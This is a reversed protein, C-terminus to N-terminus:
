DGGAGFDMLIIRGGDERMVNQPKIDRHVLGAAHVAALARTLELAVVAAERASFRGREHLLDKLTRGVVLEMWLGVQGKVRDAGYVTVINTHRVAALLRAAEVVSTDTPTVRTLLKLAVESALRPDWARYVMGFAGTGLRGRLELHAWTSPAVPRALTAVDGSGSEVTISDVTRPTASTDSVRHVSRVGELIRLQSLIEREGPTLEDSDTLTWDIPLDAAVADAVMALVDRGPQM